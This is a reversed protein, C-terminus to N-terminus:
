TRIRILYPCLCGVSWSNLHIFSVAKNSSFLTSCRGHGCDQKSQEGLAPATFSPKALRIKGAGKSYFDVREVFDGARLVFMARPITKVYM